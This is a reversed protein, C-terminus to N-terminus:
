LINRAPALAHKSPLNEPRRLSPANGPSHRAKVVSAQGPSPVLTSVRDVELVSASRHPHTSAVRLAGDHRLANMWSSQIGAGIGRRARQRSLSRFYPHTEIVPPSGSASSEEPQYSPAGSEIWCLESAQLSFSYQVGALLCPSSM